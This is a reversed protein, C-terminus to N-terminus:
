QTSQEPNQLCQDDTSDGCTIPSCLMSGSECLKSCGDEKCVEFDVAKMKYVRYSELENPPCEAGSSTCDRQFCNQAGEPCSTEVVVTYDKKYLYFWATSLISGLLLVWVIVIMWNTKLRM